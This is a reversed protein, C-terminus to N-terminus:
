KGQQFCKIFMEFDSMTSVLKMGREICHKMLRMDNIHIAPVVAHQQCAKIVAGISQQMLPHDYQGPVGRSISLDNPGVLICAVGPLAAIREIDRVCEATQAQVIIFIEANHALMATALDAGGQFTTHGRSLANGRIGLPPYLTMSVCKQAEEFSYIRPFM